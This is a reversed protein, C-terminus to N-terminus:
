REAEYYVWRRSIAFQVLTLALVVLLFFWALASAYGMELFRFGQQYVHLLYFWTAYAPGGDTGVYSVAFVKLGGIIGIVLNFFITPSLMPLTVHLFRQWVNAGDVKASDYLEQSIGQLGALYIVMRSGGISAWLSMVLLAPIAWRPETLWGPGPLGISRLIANLPGWRPQLIWAWVLALAVIPTLSPLFFVTRYLSVGRIGTNLLLACALSGTTGILVVGAAFYFTKGVSGWFLRDQTFMQVYNKIGVFTATDTISYDTFSLVLSALMPGAVFIIFGILWPTIFLYGELTKARRRTLQLHRPM